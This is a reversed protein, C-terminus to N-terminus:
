QSSRAGCASGSSLEGRLVRGIIMGPIM